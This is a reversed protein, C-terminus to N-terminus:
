KGTSGFGGTGRASPTLAEVRKFEPREVRSFVLQALREWREILYDTSSTNILIVCIEGRYDADITGVPVIIGKKSTSSRPRVQAELFSPMEVFLGTKILVTAGAKLWHGNAEVHACLDYGSSLETGKTPEMTAGTWRIIAPMGRLQRNEELLESGRQQLETVRARLEENEALANRVIKQLAQADELSEREVAGGLEKKDSM